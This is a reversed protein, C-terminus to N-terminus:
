TVLASVVHRLAVRVAYVLAARLSLLVCLHAMGAVAKSRRVTGQLEGRCTLLAHCPRQRYVRHVHWVGRQCQTMYSSSVQLSTKLVLAERKFKQAKHAAQVLEEYAPHFRLQGDADLDQWPAPLARM